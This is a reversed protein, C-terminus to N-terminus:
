RVLWHQAGNVVILVATLLAVPAAVAPVYTWRPAPENAPWELQRLEVAQLLEIAAAAVVMRWLLVAAASPLVTGQIAIHSDYSASRILVITIMTLAIALVSSCALLAILAPRRRRAALWIVFLPLGLGFVVGVLLGRDVDVGDGDVLGAVTVGSAVVAQLGGLLQLTAAAVRVPQRLM